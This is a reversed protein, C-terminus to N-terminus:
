GRITQKIFDYRDTIDEEVDVSHIEKENRLVGVLYRRGNCTLVYCYCMYESWPIDETMLLEIEAGDSPEDLERCAREIIESQVKKEAKERQQEEFARAGFLVCLLVILAMSAIFIITILKGSRM